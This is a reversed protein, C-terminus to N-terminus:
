EDNRSGLQERPYSVTLDADDLVERLADAIPTLRQELMRCTQCFWVRDHHEDSESCLERAREAFPRPHTM